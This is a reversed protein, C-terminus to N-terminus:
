WVGGGLHEPPSIPPAPPVPPSPPGGPESPPPGTMIVGCIIFGGHTLSADSRWRLTQGATMPVHSPGSAGSYRVGSIEVFDHTPETDFYVASASLQANARM